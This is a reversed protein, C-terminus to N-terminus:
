CDGANWNAETGNQQARSFLYSFIGKGAPHGGGAESQRALTQDHAFFGAFVV